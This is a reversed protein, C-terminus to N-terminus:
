DFTRPDNAPGSIPAWWWRFLEPAPSSNTSIVSNYSMISRLSLNMDDVTGCHARGRPGDVIWWAYDYEQIREPLM